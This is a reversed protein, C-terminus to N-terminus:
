LHYARMFALLFTVSTATGFTVQWRVYRNVTTGAALAVVGAIHLPTGGSGLNIVGTTLLDAFDADENTSAHQVKITATINGAGASTTVQYMMWGGFATSALQDVGAATNDTTEATDMHLMVGWPNSYNSLSTTANVTGFAISAPILQGPAPDDIYTLQNFQGCFVPDGVAPAAQIGQPIMVNRPSVGGAAALVSHISVTATNDFIGNFTGPSIEGQGIRYKKLAATVPDDLLEQYSWKLPGITRMYSSFDYGNIYARRHNITTRGTTM